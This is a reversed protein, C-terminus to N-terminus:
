MHGTNFWFYKNIPVCGYKGPDTVVDANTYGPCFGTTNGIGYDHPNDLVNNLFKNADFIMTKARPHAAAFAESHRAQSKGFWDVMTANPLPNMKNVNPPTRDLPPLNVFLFNHYGADFLPQVSQTFVADWLSDYFDPFSVNYRSSDSIDNIGIWIAVLAHKQKFSRQKALVPQAYTLFQQTQNVLPTTFNHHLPTFEESVDAGAFAFDWLQLECTSPSTLGEELGCGTLYEVWNPGGEATGSFNQVIQNSLLEEPTIAFQGPLYSGIFSFGPQGHTGQVFTYSDGFAILHKTSEWNFHSRSSPLSLSFCQQALALFLLVVLM